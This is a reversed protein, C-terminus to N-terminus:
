PSPATRDANGEPEVARTARRRDYVWLAEALRDRVAEDLMWPTIRFRWNGNAESPKNMRCDGGLGVLDQHPIVALDAVSALALRIMDWHVERGDSGTYLRFLRREEESADELWWGATTNNDHTGTYVVLHRVHFHPLFLSRPSPPFAFQLVAMGPLGLQDRLALVDPTILGLDEAVFPLGGFAEGIADFLARDPGPAWRGNVASEEDADVEWHAAFGRFHDLRVIDVQTLAHRLRAVWWAYGEDALQQWDYLPNGWLQGTASFYDPPVGAVVTRRGDADLQFLDRRAWVEASDYDVFIPVDGLMKLGSESARRRLARWQRAFLLQCLEVRELDDPHERRWEAIAGPDRQALPRPWRYWPEGGHATKLASFVAYDDLWWRNDARFTELESALGAPPRDRFRAHARRLLERKYPIVAEYEVRYDPFPPPDLLDDLELLGEEVLVHPSLLMPNGAFTSTASYPSNGPGPPNLPLLQWWSVGASSLWDVYAHAGPGLDGIGFRSPLCTPHLLVGAARDFRM